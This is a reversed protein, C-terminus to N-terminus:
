FSDEEKTLWKNSYPCKRSISILSCSTKGSKHRAVSNNHFAEAQEYTKANFYHERISVEDSRKYEVKFEWLKEM